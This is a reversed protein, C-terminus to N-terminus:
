SLETIIGKAAKEMTMKALAQNGDKALITIMHVHVEADAGSCLMVIVGNPTQIVTENAASFGLKGSADHASRFIDNFTAGVINLDVDNSTSDAALIEGTFNMVASAIYGNINRLDALYTELAM